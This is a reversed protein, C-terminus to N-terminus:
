GRRRAFLWGSVALSVALIGACWALAVWAQSGVPTGLWALADAHPRFRLLLGVALVLAFSAANRVV